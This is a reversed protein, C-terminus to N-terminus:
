VGEEVRWMQGTWVMVAPRLGYPDPAVDRAFNMLEVQLPTFKILVYNERGPGEPWFQSWEARWYSRRWAPDDVVRATGLLVAYATEEASHYALSVRSDLGIERV